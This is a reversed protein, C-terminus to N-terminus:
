LCVLSTFHHFLLYQFTDSAHMCFSFPSINLPQCQLSVVQVAFDKIDQRSKSEIEAAYYIVAGKFMRSKDLDKVSGVLRERPLAEDTVSEVTSGVQLTPSSFNSHFCNWSLVYIRSKKDAPDSEFIVPETM